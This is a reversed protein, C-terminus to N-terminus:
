KKALNALVTNSFTDKFNATNKYIYIYVWSHIQQASYLYISMIFALKSFKFIYKVIIFELAYHFTIQNKKKKNFYITVVFVLYQFLTYLSM